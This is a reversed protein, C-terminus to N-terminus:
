RLRERAWCFLGATAATGTVVAWAAPALTVVALPLAVGLCLAPLAFTQGRLWWQLRDVSDLSELADLFFLYGSLLVAVTAVTWLSSRGQLLVLAITCASFATGAWPLRGALSLTLALSALVLVPLALAPLGPALVVLVGVGPLLPFWTM